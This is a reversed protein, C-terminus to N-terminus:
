LYIMLEEESEDVAHDEQPNGNTDSWQFFSDFYDEADSLMPELASMYTPENPEFGLPVSEYISDLVRRGGLVGAAGYTGHANLTRHADLISIITFPEMGKDSQPANVDQQIRRLQVFDYRSPDNQLYMNKYDDFRLLSNPIGKARIKEHVKNDPTIYRVCYLKPSLFYGEVIKGGDLEDALMGLDKGMKRRCQDLQSSHVILSDTDTYFFSNKMSDQWSYNSPSMLRTPDVVDYMDNMIRRSHSLIFAGLYHPKTVTKEFNHRVGSMMMISDSLEKYQVGKHSDLFKIWKKNQGDDDEPIDNDIFEHDEFQRKQMMKGYLANMLKKFVERAAPNFDPSKSQKLVDQKAKNQFMDYIYQGFLPQKDKWVFASKVTFGYGYRLGTRIDINTYVQRASSENNWCTHGEANKRPLPSVIFHAPARVSVEYIGIPLEGHSDLWEQLVAVDKDSDVRTVPGCPFEAEMMSAPYLSVVDLDILYDTIDNYDTLGEGLYTASKFFRKVFHCRGGYTAENTMSYLLPDIPLPIQWQPNLSARWLSFATQSLTIYNPLYIQFNNWMEQMFKFGLQALCDVDLKLYYECEQMLNFTYDAPQKVKWENYKDRMHAPYHQEDLMPGVYDLDKWDKIFLHPFVHKSVPIQYAKCNADLSSPGLFNWLDLLKHGLFSIQLLRGNNMVFEEIKEGTKIHEELLFYHDFNSGNYSILTLSVNNDRMHRLYMMFTEMATDGNFSFYHQHGEKNVQIAGVAYVQHKVGNFFTEFDYFLLDGWLYSKCQVKDNEKPRKDEYVISHSIRKNYYSVTNPNCSHKDMNVIDRKGCYSCMYLALSHRMIVFYHEHFLVLDIFNHNSPKYADQLHSEDGEYKFTAVHNHHEDFVRINRSVFLNQVFRHVTQFDVKKKTPLHLHTRWLDVRDSVVLPAIIEKRNKSEQLIVYKVCAFFCNNNKVNPCWVVMNNLDMMFGPSNGKVQRNTKECVTHSMQSLLENVTERCGGEPFFQQLMRRPAQTMANGRGGFVIREERALPQVNPVPIRRRGQTSRYLVESSNYGEFRNSINKTGAIQIILDRQPAASRNNVNRYMTLSPQDEDDNLLASFQYGVFDFEGNPGGSGEAANRVFTAFDDMWAPCIDDLLTNAFMPFLDVNLITKDSLAGNASSWNRIYSQDLAANFVRYIFRVNARTFLSTTNRFISLPSNTNLRRLRAFVSLCLAHLSRAFHGGNVDFDDNNERYVDAIYINRGHPQQTFSFQLKENVQYIGDELIGSPFSSHDAPYRWFLRGTSTHHLVLSNDGTIARVALPAVAQRQRQRQGRGLAAEAM